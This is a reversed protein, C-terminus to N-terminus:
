EYKCNYRGALESINNIYSAQGKSHNHTSIWVNRKKIIFHNESKYIVVSSYKYRSVVVKLPSEKGCRWEGSFEYCFPIVETPFSISKVKHTESGWFGDMQVLITKSAHNGTGDLVEQLKCTFASLPTMALIIILTALIFRM